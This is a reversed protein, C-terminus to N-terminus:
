NWEQCIKEDSIAAFIDDWGVSPLDDYYKRTDRDRKCIPYGGYFYKLNGNKNEETTLDFM